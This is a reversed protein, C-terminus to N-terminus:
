PTLETPLRPGAIRRGFVWLAAIVVVWLAVLFGIAILLHRV